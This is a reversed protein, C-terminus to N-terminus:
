KPYVVKRSNDCLGEFRIVWRTVRDTDASVKNKSTLRLGCLYYEGISGNSQVTKIIENCIQMNRRNKNRGGTYVNFEVTFNTHNQIEIDTQSITYPNQGYIEMTVCPLEPENESEYDLGIFNIEGLIDILDDNNFRNQILNRLETDFVEDDFYLENIM